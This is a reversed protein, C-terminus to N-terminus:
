EAMFTDFITDIQVDGALSFDFDGDETFVVVAYRNGPTTSQLLAINTPVLGQSESFRVVGLISGLQDDNYSRVGVWGESVPYIASEIAISQSAPQDNVVISGDGVQLEPAPETSVSPTATSVEEGAMEDGSETDTSAPATEDATVENNNNSTAPADASPGSFAWVLMGGILLGVVFAVLTKQGDQQTEEAM